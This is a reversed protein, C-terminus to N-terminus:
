KTAIEEECKEAVDLFKKALELNKPAIKKAYAVARKGIANYLRDANEKSVVKTPVREKLCSYANGLLAYSEDERGKKAYDEAIVLKKDLVSTIKTKILDIVTGGMKGDPDEPIIIHAQAKTPEIFEDHMPKVTKLRQNIISDITRGRTKLDRQIRRILGVDLGTDVFLRLNAIIEPDYLAFIGELIIIKKPKVKIYKERTHTMFSYLPMM